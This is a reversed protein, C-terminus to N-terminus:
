KKANPKAKKTKIGTQQELAELMAADEILKAVASDEDNGIVTKDWHIVPGRKSLIESNLARRILARIPRDGSDLVEFFDEPKKGAWEAVRHIMIEDPAEYYGIHAALESLTEFDKSEELDYVRAQAKTRLKGSEIAVKADKAENMEKFLPKANAAANPSGECDPSNKLFDYMLKGEADKQGERVVFTRHSQSLEFWKGRAKGKDDVGEVYQVGVGHGRGLANSHDTYTRFSISGGKAAVEPVLVFYKFKGSNYTKAM